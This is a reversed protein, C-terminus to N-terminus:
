TEPEDDRRQPGRLSRRRSLAPLPAGQSACITAGLEMLGKILTVPVQERYEATGGGAASERDDKPDFLRDLVRRANGDIAPYPQQFAISM